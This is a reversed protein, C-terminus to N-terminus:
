KCSTCSWTWNTTKIWWRRVIDSSNLQQVLWCAWGSHLFSAPVVVLPSEHTGRWFWIYVHRWRLSTSILARVQRMSAPSISSMLARRSQTWQKGKLLAMGLNFYDSEVSMTRHTRGPFSLFDDQLIKRVLEPEAINLIPSSGRYTSFFTRTYSYSWLVIIVIHYYHGVEFAHLLGHENFHSSSNGSFTEMSETNSWCPKM